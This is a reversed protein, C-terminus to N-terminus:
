AKTRIQEQQRDNKQLYREEEWKKLYVLLIALDSPTVGALRSAQGLTTPLHLNLRYRSEASLAPIQGYDFNGPINRNEQAKLRNIERHQRDLYGEYVIEIEAAKLVESDYVLGDSLSGDLADLLQQLNIEPRKLLHAASEVKDPEPDSPLIKGRPLRVEHIRKVWANKASLRERISDIRDKDILGAKFAIEGLREEANDQRLLLRYEARSTFMRYPEDPDLTVLDDILVGIYGDNRKFLVPAENKIKLAANAGAVLGLCAAEEYGSTGSIQGAFYLGPLRRSELTTLLEVAPVVDYEVAYGPRGIEAESCGPLTRLAKTQVKEPLSSSFGNLYLWPHDIGEPELVIPHRERHPFRVVKDEISPCYRPGVSQITGNFLPSENIRSNILEHTKQNTYTRWCPLQPLLRNKTERAFFWEEVETEQIELVDLNVTEKVIRPPTGTKFRRLPFGLQALSDSLSNSAKEHYRGSAWNNEGIHVLGRLFTGSCIIAAGTLIPSERGACVIGSIHGNKTVLSVIEDEIIDINKYREEILSDISHTYTDRDVQARPSWVAPGKSRNLMRYQIASMDTAIPMLGGLADIEKILQGKATGGMAPNCSLKALAGKELTVIAVTLGLRSAAAAAEVGGHGGGIIIVEYM